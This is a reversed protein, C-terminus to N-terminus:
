SCSNDHIEKTRCLLSILINLLVTESGNSFFFIPNRGKRRGLGGKKKTASM